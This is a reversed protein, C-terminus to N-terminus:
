WIHHFGHRLSPWEFRTSSVIIRITWFYWLGVIYLLMRLLSVSHMFSFVVDSANHGDGVGLREPMKKKNEPFINWPYGLRSSIVVCVANVTCVFFVTAAVVDISFSAYLCGKLVEFQRNFFCCVANLHFVKLGSSPTLNIEHLYLLLLHIFHIILECVSFGCTPRMQKRRLSKFNNLFFMHWFRLCNFISIDKSWKGYICYLNPTYGWRKYGTLTCSAKPPSNVNYSMKLHVNVHM